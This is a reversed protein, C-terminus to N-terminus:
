FEFHRLNQVDGARGGLFDRNKVGAFDRSLHGCSVWTIVPCGLKPSREGITLRLLNSFNWLIEEPRISRITLRTFNSKM